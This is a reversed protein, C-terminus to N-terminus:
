SQQQAKHRRKQVAFAVGQANLDADTALLERAARDDARGHEAFLRDFLASM